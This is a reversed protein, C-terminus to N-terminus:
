TKVEYLQDGIGYDPHLIYAGEPLETAKHRCDDQFPEPDHLHRRALDDQLRRKGPMYVHLLHLLACVLFLKAPCAHCPSCGPGELRQLLDQLELVPPGACAHTPLSWPHM